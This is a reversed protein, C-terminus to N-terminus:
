EVDILLCELESMNPVQKAASLMGPGDKLKEAFTANEFRDMGPFWKRFQTVQLSCNM